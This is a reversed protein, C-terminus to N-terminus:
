CVCTPPTTARALTWRPWMLIALQPSRTSWPRRQKTAPPAGDLVVRIPGTWHAMLLPLLTKTLYGAINGEGGPIAFAPVGHAQCAIVSPQGNVLYLCTQSTTNALQVAEPLGFLVPDQNTQSPKFKSKPHNFLRYRGGSSDPFFLAEYVNGDFDAYPQLVAGWATYDAWTCGHRDPYTKPDEQPKSAAGQPGDILTKAEAFTLGDRKMVYDYKSHWRQDPSCNRCHWEGGAWNPHVRM